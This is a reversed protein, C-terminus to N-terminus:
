GDKREEEYFDCQELKDTKCRHICELCVGTIVQYEIVWHSYGYHAFVGYVPFHRLEKFVNTGGRDLYIRFNGDGYSEVRSVLGIKKVSSGSLEYVPCDLLLDKEAVKIKPYMKNSVNEELFKRLERLSKRDMNEIM